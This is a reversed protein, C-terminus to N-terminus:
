KGDSGKGNGCTSEASRLFINRGAGNGVAIRSGRVRIACTGHTSRRIVFIETGRVIGVSALRSRLKKTGGVAEIVYVKGRTSSRLTM